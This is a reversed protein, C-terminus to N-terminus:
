AISRLDPVNSKQYLADLEQDAQKKTLGAAKQELYYIEHTVRSLQMILTMLQYSTDCKDMEAAIAWKQAQLKELRTM